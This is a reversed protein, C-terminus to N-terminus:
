QGYNAKLASWTPANETSIDQWEVIAWDGFTDAMLTFRAEGEMLVPIGQSQQSHHMELKYKSIILTTIGSPNIQTDNFSVFHLSDAPTLVSLTTFYSRENEANWSSFVGPSEAAVDPAPIFRFAPLGKSTDSLSRVYNEVNLELIANRLNEIVSKEDRPQVWSQHASTPEEPERTTFPNTCAFYFLLSLSYLFLNQIRNIFM